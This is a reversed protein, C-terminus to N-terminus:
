KQGQKPCASLEKRSIAISSTFSTSAPERGPFSYAIQVDFKIERIDEVKIPEEVNVRVQLTKSLFPLVMTKVVDPEVKVSEPENFEGIVKMPLPAFNTIKMSTSGGTFSDGEVELPKFKVIEDRDIKDKIERAMAAVPYPTVDETRIGDLMLNAIVPGEDTMTVWMVHDFTGVSPGNLTSYGGTTALRIYRRGKRVDRAYQHEHGAFVTYRREELLEEFKGWNTNEYEWLPKHVFVLTWRVQENHQLVKRFYEIQSDNLYDQRYEKDGGESNLSLFLVNHYIFHYYSRGFRQKWVELMTGNSIDHNGPVYFFPMQLRDVLANFDKWQEDLKELEEVDGEILDGVCIVFEPQLLNVKDLADSFVGARARGTRDAMIVFQFDENENNFDLHTWPNAKGAEIQIGDQGCAAGAFVVVLIIIILGSRYKM